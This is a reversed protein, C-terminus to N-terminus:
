YRFRSTFAILDIKFWTYIRICLQIYINWANLRGDATELVFTIAFCLCLFRVFTQKWETSRLPRNSKGCRNYLLALCSPFLHTLWEYSLRSQVKVRTQQISCGVRARCMHVRARRVCVDHVCKFVGVCVRWVGPASAHMHRRLYHRSLATVDGRDSCM